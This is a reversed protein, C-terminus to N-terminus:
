SEYPNELGCYAHVKEIQRECYFDPPVRSSKGGQGCTLLTMGCYQMKPYATFPVLMDILGFTYVMTGDERLVSGDSSDWTKCAKRSSERLIDPTASPMHERLSLAGSSQHLWSGGGGERKLTVRGSASSALSQTSDMGEIVVGRTKSKTEQHAEEIQKFFSGTKDHIQVLLSFDMINFDQLLEVDAQHVDAVEEAIDPPLCLSQGMEEDFNNDKGVSEGPKATRHRTSGKLDYSHSIPLHHSTVARMIFFLREPEGEMCLRYLGLYRGLMSRPEATLREIYRPLMGVLTEAEGLTTTKLLYKDDHSFFFVEGSKSNTGFSIFDFDTRCVSEFFAANEIGCLRRVEAFLTPSFEEIRFHRDLCTQPSFASGGPPVPFVRVQHQRCAMYELMPFRHNFAAELECGQSASRAWVEILSSCVISVHVGVMAAVALGYLEDHEDVRKRKDEAAIRDVIAACPFDHQVWERKDDFNGLGEPSSAYDEWAGELREVLKVCSPVVDQRASSSWDCGAALELAWLDLLEDRRGKGHLFLCFDALLRGDQALKSPLDSESEEEVLELRKVSQAAGVLSGSCAGM